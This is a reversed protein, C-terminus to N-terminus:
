FSKNYFFAPIYKGAKKKDSSIALGSINLNKTRKFNNQNIGGLAIFNSSFRRSLLNFKITDLFGKKNKYKTEFIRSLFIQKCGQQIKQKIELSNHASGVININKNIHKLHAYQSKNHASIYFNNTKLLFLIKINNSVFFDIKRRHCNIKFKMLVSISIKEVNRLVLIAGTKKVYDLNIENPNNVM